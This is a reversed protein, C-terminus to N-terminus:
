TTATFPMFVVCVSVCVRESEALFYDFLIPVAHVIATALVAFGFLAKLWVSQTCTSVPWASGRALYKPSFQGPPECRKRCCWGKERIWFLAAGSALRLLM